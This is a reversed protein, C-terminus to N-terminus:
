QVSLIYVSWFDFNNIHTLLFILDNTVTGARASGGGAAGAQGGCNLYIIQEVCRQTVSQDCHANSNHVFPAIDSIVSTELGTSFRPM